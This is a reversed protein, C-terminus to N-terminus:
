GPDSPRCPRKGQGRVLRSQLREVCRALRAAGFAGGGTVPARDIVKAGLGKAIQEVIKVMNQVKRTFTYTM